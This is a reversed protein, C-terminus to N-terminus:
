GGDGKGHGKARLAERLVANERLMREAEETLRGVLEHLSQIGAIIEGREFMGFQRFHFPAENVSDDPWVAEAIHLFDQEDDLLSKEKGRLERLLEARSLPHLPIVPTM